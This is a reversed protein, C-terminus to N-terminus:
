KNKDDKNEEFSEKEKAKRDAIEKQLKPWKVKECYIKQVVAVACYIVVIVAFIIVAEFVDIELSM